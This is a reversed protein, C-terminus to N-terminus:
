QNKNVKSIYLLKLFIFFYKNNKTRVKRFNRLHHRVQM